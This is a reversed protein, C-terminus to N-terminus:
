DVPTRGEWLSRHANWGHTLRCYAVNDREWAESDFFGEAFRRLMGPFLVFM